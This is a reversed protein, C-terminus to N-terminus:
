ENSNLGDETPLDSIIQLYMLENEAYLDNMILLSDRDLGEKDLQLFSIILEKNKIINEWLKTRESETM